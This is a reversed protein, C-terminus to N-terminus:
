LMENRLVLSACPDSDPLASCSEASGSLSHTETQRICLECAVRCVHDASAKSPPILNFQRYVKNSKLTKPMENSYAHVAPLQTPSKFVETGLKSPVPQLTPYPGPILFTAKFDIYMHIEHRWKLVVTLKFM